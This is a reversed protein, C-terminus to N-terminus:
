VDRIDEIGYHVYARFNTLSSLDESIVIDLVETDTIIVSSPDPKLVFTMLQESDFFTVDNTADLRGFLDLNNKLVVAWIVESTETNFHRLIVGTELGNLINTFDDSNWGSSSTSLVLCIKGVHYVNYGDAEVRYTFPGGGAGTPNLEIDDFYYQQNKPGQAQYQIRLEDILQSAPLAFDAIPITVKQWIGIDFNPVYNDVIVVTGETQGNHYFRLRLSTNSDKQQPNMWFSISDYSAQIDFDTTSFTTADGNSRVGSDLGNTGSHMASASEGANDGGLTWDGGSDSAGTGNWVVTPTGGASGNVAMSEYGNDIEIFKSQGLQLRQFAVIQTGDETINYGM